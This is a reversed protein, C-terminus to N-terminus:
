DTPLHHLFRSVLRHSPISGIGAAVSGLRMDLASREVPDPVLLGTLTSPDWRHLVSCQFRAAHRTRRSSIGVVKRGDVHVEGAALGAFCVLAADDDRRMAGRHVELDGVGLDTLTACWVDGLWEAARGVDDSWLRDGQPLIVDIWTVSTPDLWVAGGGSRRRVIEIGSREARVRDVLDPSQASGLVLAPSAVEFWWVTRRPDAPIERAHFEAASGVWHDFAWAGSM